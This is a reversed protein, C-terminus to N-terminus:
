NETQVHSPTLQDGVKKERSKKTTKPGIKRQLRFDSEDAEAEGGWGTM